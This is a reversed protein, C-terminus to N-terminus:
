CSGITAPSWRLRSRTADCGVPGGAGPYTPPNLQADIAWTVIREEQVLIEPSTHHRASPEIWVSRGDGARRRSGADPPDLDICSQLIVDVDRELVEVWGAGDFDPNPRTTDCAAQLVDLRHWASRREVMEAMLDQYTGFEFRPAHRVASRISSELSAPTVGVAAAEALWHARLDETGHGSKHGRTDAAAQRGIAGREKPTPDRGERTWFEALASRYAADVQVSRKSFQDLLEEPVGAIEAQGKDIEGFAVGYRSTLEARLVSQYLGGLARQFGKLTRADLALWRGDETQVKSSIVVHSHLQPDDLRSTTQRFVAM